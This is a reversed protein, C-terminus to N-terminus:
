MKIINCKIPFMQYFLISKVFLHARHRGLLGITVANWATGTIKDGLSNKCGPQHYGGNPYFDVHGMPEPTGLGLSFISSGDTHICDVFEADSPDLRVAPHTNDFFPGAPDM